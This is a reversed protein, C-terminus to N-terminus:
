VNRNKWLIKLFLLLAGFVMFESLILAPLASKSDKLVMALSPAMILLGLNALYFQWSALKGETMVPYLRYVIGYIALSVWGLLNVHAHVPAMSFDQRAGMIIGLLMGIVGWLTATLLFRMSLNM